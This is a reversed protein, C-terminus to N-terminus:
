SARPGTTNAPTSIPTRSRTRDPVGAADRHMAGGCAVALNRGEPDRFGFGFGGGPTDWERPAGTEVGSAKVQAHLAAVTDRDAADFVIRRVAPRNAAHLSLIHHHPGTGRFWRADATTEVCDLNWVATYFGAATDLACVDVAISRIGQVRATM